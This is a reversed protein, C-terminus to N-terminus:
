PAAFRAGGTPSRARPDCGRDRTPSPSWKTPTRKRTTFLWAAVELDVLEHDGWPERGPRRFARGPARVDRGDREYERLRHCGRSSGELIPDHQDDLRKGIKRM